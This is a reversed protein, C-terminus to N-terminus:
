QKLKDQLKREVDNKVIKIENEVSEHIFIETEKIRDELITSSIFNEKMFDLVIKQDSNVKAILDNKM